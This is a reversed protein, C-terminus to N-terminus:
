GKLARLAASTSRTTFFTVYFASFDALIQGASLEKIPRFFEGSQARDTTRIARVFSLGYCTAMVIMLNLGMVVNIPTILDKLQTWTCYGQPLALGDESTLGHGEVQLLPLMGKFKIENLVRSIHKELDGFTLTRLYQIKLGVAQTSGIIELDERLKRATNFENEPIFDIIVITNFHNESM